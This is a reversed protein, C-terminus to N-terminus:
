RTVGLPLVSYSSKCKKKRFLGIVCVFEDANVCNCWAIKLLAGASIFTADIQNELLGL